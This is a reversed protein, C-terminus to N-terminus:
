RSKPLHRKTSSEQAPSFDLGQIGIAGVVFAIGLVVRPSPLDEGLVLMSLLVNWAIGLFSSMAAKHMADRKLLVM